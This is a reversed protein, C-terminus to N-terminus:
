RVSIKWVAYVNECALYFIAMFGLSYMIFCLFRSWFHMTQMESRAGHFLLKFHEDSIAKHWPTDPIRYEDDDPPREGRSIEQDEYYETMLQRNFANDVPVYRAWFDKMATEGHRYPMGEWKWNKALVFKRDALYKPLEQERAEGVFQWINFPVRGKETFDAPSSFDRILLPCRWAFLISAIPFLISAFFMVQWTFLLALTFPIQKAPLGVQTPDSFSQPISIQVTDPLNQLLKAFLPVFFFGSILPNLFDTRAL